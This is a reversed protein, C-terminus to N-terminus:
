PTEETAGKDDDGMIDFTTWGVLFDALEGLKCNISLGIWGLHLLKPCNIIQGAPRDTWSGAVAAGWPAPSEPDEPDFNEYGFQESGALLLGWTNQRLTVVGYERGGMGLLTGDLNSYGLSLISLFGAYLSFQPEKSVTLGVDFVDTFDQGRNQVYTCGTCALLVAVAAIVAVRSVGMKTM